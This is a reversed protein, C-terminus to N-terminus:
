DLVKRLMRAKTGPGTEATADAGPKAADALVM